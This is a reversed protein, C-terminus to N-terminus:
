FWGVPLGCTSSRRADSFVPWQKSTSCHLTQYECRTSNEGVVKWHDSQQVNQFSPRKGDTRLPLKPYVRKRCPKQRTACILIHVRVVNGSVSYASITRTLTLTLTRRVHQEHACEGYMWADHLRWTSFFTKNHSIFHRPRGKCCM